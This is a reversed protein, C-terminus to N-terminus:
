AQKMSYPCGSHAKQLFDKKGHSPGTPLAMSCRIRTCSSSKGNKTTKAMDQRFWAAQEENLRPQWDALESAQTNLVVFHVDGYDFSYFQNQYSGPASGPLSFLHLYAEPMRVKWDRNYTEHNGMLPAVPIRRIM